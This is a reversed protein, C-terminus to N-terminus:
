MWTPNYTNKMPTSLTLRTAAPRTERWRKQGTPSFQQQTWCVETKLIHLLEVIFYFAKGTEMLFDWKDSKVIRDWCWRYNSGTEPCSARCFVLDANAKVYIEVFFNAIFITQKAHREKSMSLTEGRPTQVSSTLESHSLMVHPPHAWQHRTLHFPPSTYDWWSTFLCCCQIFLM